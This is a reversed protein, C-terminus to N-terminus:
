GSGSCGFGGPAGAEKANEGTCHKQWIGTRFSASWERGDDGLGYEFSWTQPLLACDKMQEQLANGWDAGLWGSGWVWCQNFLAKYTCDCGGTKGNKAPQRLSNPTIRYTVDGVSFFGGGKFNEPNNGSGDGDCGDTIEQLLYKVCDDQNPAFSMGPAWEIAMTVADSTGQNYQRTIAGSDRDLIRQKVATPCFDQEIIRQLEQRGVYKKRDLGACEKHLPPPSNGSSGGSGSGSGQVPPNHAEDVGNWIASKDVRAWGFKDSAIYERLSRVLNHDSTDFPVNEYSLLNAIEGAVLPTAFSTGSDTVPNNGDKAMCTIDKGPAHTIVQSGRKSFPSVKGDFDVSGAVILPIDDGAWVSPIENVSEEAGAKGNGAPVVMPIDADFLSKLLKKTEKQAISGPNDGGATFSFTVVSKKKREPKKAVDEIIADLCHNLESISSLGFQVVVLKAKKSSGYKAGVAKGATCTSHSSDGADEWPKRGFM